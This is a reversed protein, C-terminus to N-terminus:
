VPISKYNRARSIGGDELPRSNCSGIDSNLITPTMKTYEIWKENNFVPGTRSYSVNITAYKPRSGITISKYKNLLAGNTM